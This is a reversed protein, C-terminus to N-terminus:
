LHMHAIITVEAYKLVSSIIKVYMHFVTNCTWLQWIEENEYKVATKRQVMKIMM